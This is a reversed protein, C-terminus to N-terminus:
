GGFFYGVLYIEGDGLVKERGSMIGRWKLNKERRSIIIERGNNKVM